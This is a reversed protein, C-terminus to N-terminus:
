KKPKFTKLTFVKNSSIKKIIGVNPAFWLEKFRPSGSDISKLVNYYKIGNVIVSDLIGSTDSNSNYIKPRNLFTDNAIQCCHGSPFGEVYCTFCILNAFVSEFSFKLSEEQSIILTIDYPSGQLDIAIDVTTDNTGEINYVWTTGPNHKFYKQFLPHPTPIKLPSKGKECSQVGLLGILGFVIFLNKM